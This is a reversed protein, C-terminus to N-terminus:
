EGDFEGAMSMEQIRCIGSLDCYRCSKERDFPQVAAQGKAFAETLQDLQQRWFVLLESWDNIGLQAAQAFSSLDKVRALMGKERVLGIFYCSGKRLQAFVIGDTDRDPNSVAYTPLQPEILPVSLFNEAHLDTGTKYDIVIRYGNDLQDIRDIKLKIQLPGIQVLHQQETELIEFGDRQSEVTVLWDHILNEVREAELLLIAEPPALWSKFYDDITSRVQLHIIQSLQNENLAMLQTQNKLGQWIKDLVLHVLDGRTLASLGPVPEEFARCHLRHHVFARFPCHAQDKLLNTGGTSWEKKLEPGCADALSELEITRRKEQSLLDNFEALPPEGPKSCEKMLPSPRLECDGERSPYSFVINTSATTLRAVVQEAFELEREANAHPMGYKEQIIYPIFPNPQPKAPLLTESMGMVWLYQFTLGSSELLGVVQVAGTPAEGQFEIDKSLQRLLMLARHRSVLNSQLDLSALAELTKEQWANVAQYERSSTTRDGPWDIFKLHDAFQEAWRSLRAKDKLGILQHMRELVSLLIALGTAKRVQIILASLTFSQQKYSRIKQDLLARADAEKLAGGLYPSRLLFSLQDVSLIPGVSLFELAAHIVGQEALPAGLSLSFAAEEDQLFPSAQPDIQDRFIREIHRRQQRLDPVVIGISGAGQELLYRSWRAASEIEHRKDRAKFLMVDHNVKVKMEGECRCGLKTAVQQLRLLGPTLQDFGVLLLRHPLNIQRKEIATCIKQPLDSTDIWGHKDCLSRYHGQWLAFMRQDETLTQRELNLGYENLLHHAAVAKEATKSVQLLELSTGRSAIEIQQEWLYKEQYQSLLRWSEGLRDLCQSLWGEYSFILPTSWVSKGQELMWEDFLQRLCRFLRKNATLILSGSAAAELTKFHFNQM